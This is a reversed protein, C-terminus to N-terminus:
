GAARLDQYLRILQDAVTTLGYREEARRRAAEGMSRRREPDDLLERVRAVLDAGILPEVLVGEKGPEIVERVGPMDAIIVPLGSAMAETVALGFGELRNQSPFVFMEAARLYRPLEEDTVQDLFLVRDEVRQRRALAILDDRRPGRGVIMLAVDSPLAALARVIVDVGKHPVLRGTFILVRKGDLGLAHKTPEGDLDPRFRTLDVASPVITLTRGRLPASTMGYSRTHVIIAKVRRLTYPLYLRQYLGTLVRGMPGPLYLDCHYTLCIPVGTKRIGRVAYYATLPPPYHLHVIDTPISRIASRLRPDIPTNFAIALPRTRVIRYGDREEREPLTRDHSSTLVTVDHGRRALEGSIARVHSEVGGAHPYFFPSVQLIRM